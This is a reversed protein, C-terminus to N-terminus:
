GATRTVLEEFYGPVSIMKEKEAKALRKVRNELRLALRKDGVKKQLMVKLPARGKLYKSGASGGQQHEALRREIDTSVGTYLTGDRCRLMYLYWDAM